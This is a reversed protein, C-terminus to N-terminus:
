PNGRGKHHLRGAGPALETVTSTGIVNEDYYATVTFTATVSGVNEVTVNIDVPVTWTPYAQTAAPVVNTVAVDGGVPIPELAFDLTNVGAVITITQTLDYYGTASAKVQYDGLDLEEVISYGGLDDTTVPNFATPGSVYSVTADAIPQGTSADTVTGSLTGKEPPAATNDFFGHGLHYPDTV